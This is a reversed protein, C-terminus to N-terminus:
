WQAVSGKINNDPTAEGRDNAQFAGGQQSAEKEGATGLAAGQGKM